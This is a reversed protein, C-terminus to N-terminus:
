GKTSIGAMNLTRREALFVTGIDYLSKLCGDFLARLYYPSELAEIGGSQYQVAKENMVVEESRVDTEIVLRGGYGGADDCRAIVPRLEHSLDTTNSSM